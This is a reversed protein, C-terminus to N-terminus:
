SNKLDISKVYLFNKTDINTYQKKKEYKEM